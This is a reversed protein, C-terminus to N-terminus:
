HKKKVKNKNGNIYDKHVLAYMENKYAIKTPTNKKEKVVEVADQKGLEYFFQAINELQGEHLTEILKM